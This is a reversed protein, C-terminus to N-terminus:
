PSGEFVLTAGFALDPGVVLQQVRESFGIKGRQLATRATALNGAAFRLAALRAGGATPPPTAGFRRTFSAPEMVDINGRPTKATIGSADAAVSQVPSPQCFRM